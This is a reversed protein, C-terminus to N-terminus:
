ETKILVTNIDEFQLLTQEVQTHRLLQECKNDTEFYAENFIVKATGESIWIHKLRIDSSLASFYGENTHESKLPSLLTMISNVEEPSYDTEVERKLQYVKECEGNNKDMPYYTYFTIEDDLEENSKIVETTETLESGETTKINEGQAQAESDITADEVEETSELDVVERNSELDEVPPKSPTCKEWGAPVDCPTPFEQCNNIKPDQAYTIVQICIPKDLDTVTKTPTEQANNPKSDNPTTEKSSTSQKTFTYLGGIITLVLFLLIINIITNKQLM